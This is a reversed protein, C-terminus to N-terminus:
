DEEPLVLDVWDFPAKTTGLYFGGQKATEFAKTTCCPKSRSLGLRTNVHRIADLVSKWTFDKVLDKLHTYLERKNIRPRNVRSATTKPDVIFGPFDLMLAKLVLQAGIDPMDNESVNLTNNADRFLEATEGSEIAPVDYAEIVIPIDYSSDTSMIEFLASVRHQGDICRITSDPTIVIKFTGIVRKSKKLQTTLQKVHGENLSRQSAWSRVHPVFDRATCSYLKVTGDHLICNRLFYPTDDCEDYEEDASLYEALCAEMMKQVM